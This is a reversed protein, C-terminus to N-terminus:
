KKLAEKDKLMQKPTSRFFLIVFMVVVYALCGFLAIYKFLEENPTGYGLSPLMLILFLPLAIAIATGSGLVMEEAVPTELDKDLGKLLAIGTSATGTLMGFLGVFYENKFKPYVRRTIFRLYVLTLIGGVMSVVALLVGYDKLFDLTITLVAGAIMINFFLSSLNSLVYDNGIFDVNKGKQEIKRVIFKYLLAYFIGIIFNFGELLGYVTNGIGGDDSVLIGEFIFLTLWVMAYILSIIVFQVTIGDLFSIEKITNVEVIHKSIVPEEYRTTKEIKNRRSIVNILLVGVIGGFLFGLFAYSAGLAIGFGGLMDNWMSGFSTALGPGQGFGLALLMGSGVFKDSFFLVVLLIGIFGQLAYTSTIIMGTSWVKKKDESQQKRLTLAIFGLALCHYVITKMIDVDIIHMGDELFIADYTLALILGITGGLLATPLVIRNIFPMKTKLIKGVFLLVGILLFYIIVGWKEM